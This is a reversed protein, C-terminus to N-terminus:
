GSLNWDHKLEPLLFALLMMEMADAAWIIGTVVFVFIQFPGVGVEYIAKDISWQPGTILPTDEDSSETGSGIFDSASM